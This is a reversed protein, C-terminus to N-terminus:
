VDAAQRRHGAGHGARAACRLQFSDPLEDVRAGRFMEVRQNDFGLGPVQDVVKIAVGEDIQNGRRGRNREAGGALLLALAFPLTGRVRVM